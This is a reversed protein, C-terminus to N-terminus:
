PHLALVAGALPLAQHLAAARALQAAVDVVQPCRLHTSVGDGRGGHRVRWVLDLDSLPPPWRSSPTATAAGIAVRRASDPAAPIAMHTSQARPQCRIGRPYCYDRETAVGSGGRSGLYCVLQRLQDINREAHQHSGVVYGQFACHSPEQDSGNM